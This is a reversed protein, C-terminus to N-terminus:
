SFNVGAALGQLRHNPGHSSYITSCNLQAQMKFLEESCSNVSKCCHLSTLHSFKLQPFLSRFAAPQETLFLQIRTDVTTAFGKNMQYLDKEGHLTTVECIRSFIPCLCSYLHLKLSKLLTVRTNNSNLKIKKYRAINSTLTM